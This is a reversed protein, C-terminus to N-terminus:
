CYYGMASAKVYASVIGVKACEACCPIEYGTKSFSTEPKPVWGGVGSCTPCKMMGAPPKSVSDWAASWDMTVLPAVPKAPSLEAYWDGAMWCDWAKGCGCACSNM